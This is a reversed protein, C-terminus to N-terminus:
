ISVGKELLQFTAIQTLRIRHCYQKTQHVIGDNMKLVKFLKDKKSKKHFGEDFRNEYVAYSTM